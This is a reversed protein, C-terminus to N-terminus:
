NAYVQLALKRLTEIKITFDYMVITDTQLENFILGITMSIQM